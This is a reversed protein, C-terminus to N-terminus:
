NIDKLRKATKTSQLNIEELLDVVQVTSERALRAADIIKKFKLGIEPTTVFYDNDIAQNMTEITQKQAELLEPMTDEFIFIVKAMMKIKQFMFYVAYVLLFNLLLSIILFAIM